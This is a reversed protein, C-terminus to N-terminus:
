SMNNVILSYMGIRLFYSSDLFPVGWFRFIFKLRKNTNYLIMCLEEWMESSSAGWKRIQKGLVFQLPSGQM